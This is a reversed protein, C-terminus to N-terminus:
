LKRKECLALVYISEAVSRIELLSCNEIRSQNFKLKISTNISNTKPDLVKSPETFEAVVLRAAEEAVDYEGIQYAVKALSAAINCVPM